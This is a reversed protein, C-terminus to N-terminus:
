WAFKNLWEVTDGIKVTQALATLYGIKEVDDLEVTEGPPFAPALRKYREVLIQRCQFDAVDAVGEMMIELIRGDMIWNLKGWSADAQEIWKFSMGSGLSLLLVDGPNGYVGPQDVPPALVQALGAVSPNNAIVGGDIYGQYIPFYTPAASTRMAVDLALQSRDEDLPRNTFFKAKWRRTNESGVEDRDVYDLDFSSILVEKQLEGLTRAGLIPILTERLGDNKYRATPWGDLFSRWGSDFIQPGSAACLERVASPTMGTALALAIIGGSSTGALLTANNILAPYAAALLELM